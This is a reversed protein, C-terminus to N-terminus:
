FAYGPDKQGLDCIQPEGAYEAYEAYEACDRSTFIKKTKSMGAVRVQEAKRMSGEAMEEEEAEM